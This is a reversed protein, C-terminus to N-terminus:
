NNKDNNVDKTFPNGLVKFAFILAAVLMILAAVTVYSSSMLNFFGWQMAILVVIFMLFTIFISKM